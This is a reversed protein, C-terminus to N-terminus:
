WPTEELEVRDIEFGAIGMSENLANGYFEIQESQFFQDPLPFRKVLYTTNAWIYDDWVTDTLTSTDIEDEEEQPNYGVDWILTEDNVTTEKVNRTKGEENGDRRNKIHFNNNCSGDLKVRFERSSMYNSGDGFTFWPTRYSFNIPEGDFSTGEFERLIKGDSTGIYVKDNFRFAITVTQPVVRLWWSKTITDYCYAYNSGKGGRMPIYFILYSKLPEFVPFIRGYESKNINLFDDAIKHSLEQGLYNNIFVTRKMLPFIGQNMRSYVYYANAISIWSQQSECSIDAFPVLRWGSDSADYIGPELYYTYDRRHIVLYEGYIGLATFDSNDNYFMPIAGAGYKLDWGHILGVESYYLTGDNGGVFLRGQWTNIALGRIVERVSDDDSNIYVANLRSLPATYMDIDTTEVALTKDNDIDRDYIYSIDNINIQLEGDIIAGTESQYMMRNNRWLYLDCVNTDEATTTYYTTVGRTWSYYDLDGSPVTINTELTIKDDDVVEKIEYAEELPGFYVFDGPSLRTFKTDTGTVTTSNDTITVTGEQLEIRGEQYFMLDDVGNTFVVGHNYNVASMRQTPTDFQFILEFTDTLSDFKWVKGDTTGVMLYRKNGLVYEHGLCVASDFTTGIQKNGEMTKIGGLKNLEVNWCQPTDTGKVSQNITGIGQITNLGGTLSYYRSTLGAM